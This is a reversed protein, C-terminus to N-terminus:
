MGDMGNVLGLIMIVHKLRFMCNLSLCQRRDGAYRICLSVLTNHKASVYVGTALMIFAYVAVTVIMTAMIWIETKITLEVFATTLGFVYFYVFNRLLPKLVRNYKNFDSMM